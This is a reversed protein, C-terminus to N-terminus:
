REALLKDIFATLRKENGEDWGIVTARIVGKRDVVVIQPIGQVAYRGETDKTTTDGRAPLPNVAIKFPLAWEGAYYSRDEAVEQEPTLPRKKGLYGYLYTEFVSEVPKGAFHKSMALMGPYSHRCPVCWHATFQILTVKGNGPELAAAAGDGSNIWWKGDVPTAKTGVLKYMERQGDLYRHSDPFASGLVRDAEDLIMLASDAHLFDAQGRALSSYATAMVPYAASASPVGPRPPTMGLAGSALAKRALALLKHAHDRIGSDNDAYEYRGLLNEHARIKQPIVADSLQDIQRVFREADQNIGTFPDFTAISLQVAAVMANARETEPMGPRSLALASVTKAKATDLTFLYLSTLSALESPSASEIAIRSACERAMRKGEAQIPAVSEATLLTGGSRMDAFRKAQFALADSQCQAAANPPAPPPSQSSVTRALGAVILGALALHRSM